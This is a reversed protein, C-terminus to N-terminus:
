SLSFGGLAMLELSVLTVENSASRTPSIGCCRGNKRLREVPQLAHLRDKESFCLLSKLLELHELVFGKQKSIPWM